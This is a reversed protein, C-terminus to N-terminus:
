ACLHKYKERNNRMYDPWAAEDLNLKEDTLQGIKNFYWGGLQTTTTSARLENLSKGKIDKYQALFTGRHEEKTRNNLYYTYTKQYLRSPILPDKANQQRGDWIENCEGIYVADDDQVKCEILAKQISEKQFSERQLPSASGVLTEDIVYYKIRNWWPRFYRQDRFFYLPKAKGEFTTKAECIIFTDVYRDLIALHLRLIDREGTYLFCDAVM